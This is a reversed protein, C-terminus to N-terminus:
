LDYLELLASYSSGYDNQDLLAKCTVKSPQVNKVRKFLEVRVPPREVHEWSRLREEVRFLSDMDLNLDISEGAPLKLDYKLKATPTGGALHIYCYRDLTLKTSRDYRKSLVSFYPSVVIEDPTIYSFNRFDFVCLIFTLGLLYTTGKMWFSNTREFLVKHVIERNELDPNLRVKNKRYADILESRIVAASKEGGDLTGWGIQYSLYKMFLSRRRALVIAFVASLFMGAFGGALMSTHPMVSMNSWIIVESASSELLRQVVPRLLFLGGLILGAGLAVPTLGFLLLRYYAPYNFRRSDAYLEAGLYNLDEIEQSTLARDYDPYKKKSVGYLLKAFIWYFFGTVIISVAIGLFGKIM